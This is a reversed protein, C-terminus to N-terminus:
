SSRILSYDLIKTNLLLSAQSICDMMSSSGAPRHSSGVDDGAQPMLCRDKVAGSKPLIYEEEFEIMNGVALHKLALGTPKKL